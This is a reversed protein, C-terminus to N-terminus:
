RTLSWYDDIDTQWSTGAKGELIDKVAVAKGELSSEYVAEAVALTRLGEWGDVEPARNTLVADFFDWLELAFPEEVGHPFLVELAGPALAARYKDQLEEMGLYSGDRQRLECPGQFLKFFAMRDSYGTDEVSGESGYFVISRTEHGPADLSWCWTGVVGSAFTLVVVGANEREHLIADRGPSSARLEAYVQECEGFLYRVSDIFHSGSDIVISGGSMLRDRRWLHAPTLKAPEPRRYTYDSLFFRPDGLLRQKNIAWHVARQGPARRYPVGVALVRGTREATQAMARGARVTVALPKEVFVHMGAQLAAVTVVHHLGHPLCIDLADAVREELVKEWSTYTSPSGLGQQRCAHAVGEANEAVVDCCAVVRCVDLGAQKLRAIAPLHRKQSVGGCGVLALRLKDM